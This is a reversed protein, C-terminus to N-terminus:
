LLERSLESLRQWAALWRQYHDPYDASNTPDPSVLKPRPAMAESAAELSPFLGAGVAACLAAGLGTTNSTAAVSVPEGLVDALMQALCQSRSLGGGLSIGKPKAGTVEELQGLCAKLAFCLNELAARVLHAKDRHGASLPIPMLFGGLKLGVQGMDMPYPGLFALAGEAGPSVGQALEDMAAFADDGQHPFLVDRLRSYAGGAEGACSEVIWRQPAVHCSSWTRTKADLMPQATAM